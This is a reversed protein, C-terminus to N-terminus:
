PALEFGVAALLDEPTGYGKLAYLAAILRDDCTTHITRTGDGNVTGGAERVIRNAEILESLSVDPVECPEGGYLFWAGARVCQGTIQRAQEYTV